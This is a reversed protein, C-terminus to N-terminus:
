RIGRHLPYLNRRTRDLVEARLAESMV